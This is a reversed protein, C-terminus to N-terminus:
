EEKAEAEAPQLEAGLLLGAGRTVVNDGAKIGGSVLVADEQWQAVALIVRRYHGPSQEVYAWQQGQWRLVAARPLKIGQTSRTTDQVQASLVQGPQLDVNGNLEVSLLYAKGLSQPNVQPMAGLLKANVTSNDALFQLRVTKATLTTPANGSLEARLLATKGSLISQSLQERAAAPLRSIAAGWTSLMQAQLSQMHSADSAVQARAAEVTKLAVNNDAKYLADLRQLESTAAALAAQAARLDAVASVLAAADLVQATASWQSSLQASVAATTAIGFNSRAQENLEVDANAARHCLTAMVCAFLMAVLKNSHM